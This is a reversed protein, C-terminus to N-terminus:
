QKKEANAEKEAEKEAEKLQKQLKAMEKKLRKLEKELNKGEQEADRYAKPTFTYRYSARVLKDFLYVIFLGVIFTIILDWNELM